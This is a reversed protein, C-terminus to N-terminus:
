HLPAIKLIATLAALTQKVENSIKDGFIGLFGGSSETISKGIQMLSLKYHMADETSLKADVTATTSELISEPAVDGDLVEAMLQTINPMLDKVIQQMIHNDAILGHILQQQFSQIKKNDITGGASAVLSFVAIPTYLLSKWEEDSFLAKFGEDQTSSNETVARGFEFVDTRAISEIAAIVNHWEAEEVAPALLVSESLWTATEGLAEALQELTVFYHDAGESRVNIADAGDSLITDVGPGYVSTIVELDASDNQLKIGTAIYFDHDELYNLIRFRKFFETVATRPNALLQGFFRPGAELNRITGALTFTAQEHQFSGILMKVMSTCHEKIWDNDYQRLFDEVPLATNDEPEIAASNQKAIEAILKIALDYDKPSSNSFIRASFIGDCFSTEIPRVSIQDIYLYADGEPWNNNVPQPSDDTLLLNNIGLNDLTKQYSLQNVNRIHFSHSM